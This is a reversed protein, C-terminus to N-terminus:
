RTKLLASFMPAPNKNQTIAAFNYETSSTPFAVARIEDRLRIISRDRRPNSLERMRKMEPLSWSSTKLVTNVMVERDVRAIQRIYQAASLRKCDGNIGSM